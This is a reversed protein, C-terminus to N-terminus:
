SRKFWVKLTGRSHHQDNVLGIEMKKPIREILKGGKFLPAGPILSSYADGTQIAIFAPPACFYIMDFIFIFTYMYIYDDLRLGPAVM